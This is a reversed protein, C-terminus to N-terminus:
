SKAICRFWLVRGDAPRRSRAYYNRGVRQAYWKYKYLREYDSADVIAYKDQTLPILRAGEALARANEPAVVDCSYEFNSCSEDEKVVISKKPAGAKNECILLSEKLGWLRKSFRCNECRCMDDQAFNRRTPVTDFSSNFSSRSATGCEVKSIRREINSM